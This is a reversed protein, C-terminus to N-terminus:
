FVQPGSGGDRSRGSSEMRIMEPSMERQEVFEFGMLVDADDRM